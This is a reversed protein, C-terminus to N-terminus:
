LCLTPPEVGEAGVLLSETEVPDSKEKIIDGPGNSIILLFPQYFRQLNIINMYKCLNSSFPKM